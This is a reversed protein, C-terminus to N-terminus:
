SASSTPHLPYLVFLRETYLIGVTINTINRVNYTGYQKHSENVLAMSEKLHM